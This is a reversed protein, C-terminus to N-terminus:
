CGFDHPEAACSFPLHSAEGHEVGFLEIKLKQGGTEILSLPLRISYGSVDDLARGAKVVDPRSTTPKVAGVFRGESLVVIRDAPKRNKAGAAWGCFYTDGGVIQSHDVSGSVQGPVVRFKEAASKSRSARKANPCALKM